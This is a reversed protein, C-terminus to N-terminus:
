GHHLRNVQKNNMITEIESFESLFQGCSDYSVDLAKDELHRPENYGGHIHGHIHWAGHNMHNWERMPFHCLTTHHKHGSRGIFTLEVMKPLWVIGTLEKSQRVKAVRHDHNGDIYMLSGVSMKELLWKAHAQTSNLTLDGLYVLLSDHTLKEDLEKYLAKSQSKCDAFGRAEWIFTRDHCDHFDTGLYVKSYNSVDIKM